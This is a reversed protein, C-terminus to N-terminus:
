INNALIWQLTGDLAHLVESLLQPCVIAHHYYPSCIVFEPWDCGKSLLICFYCNSQCNTISSIYFATPMNNQSEYDDKLGLFMKKYELLLLKEKQEYAPSGNIKAVVWFTSSKPDEYTGNRM